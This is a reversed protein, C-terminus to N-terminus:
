VYHRLRDKEHTNIKLYAIGIVEHKYIDRAYYNDRARHWNYYYLARRLFVTIGEITRTHM